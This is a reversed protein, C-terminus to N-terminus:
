FGTIREYYVWNYLFKIDMLINKLQQAESLPVIGFRQMEQVYTDYRNTNYDIYAELLKKPTFEGRMEYCQILCKICHIKSEHHKLYGEPFNNSTSNLHVLYDKLKKCKAKDSFYGM